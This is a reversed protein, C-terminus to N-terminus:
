EMTFLTGSLAPYITLTVKTDSTSMEATGWNGSAVVGSPFFGLDEETRGGDITILDWVLQPSPGAAALYLDIGDVIVPYTPVTTYQSPHRAAADLYDQANITIGAGNQNQGYGGTLRMESIGENAEFSWKFTNGFTTASPPASDADSMRIFGEMTFYSQAPINMGTGRIWFQKPDRISGDSWVGDSLEVSGIATDYTYSSGCQIHGEGNFIELTGGQMKFTGGGNYLLQIATQEYFKMTGGNTLVATCGNEVQIGAPSNGVQPWASTDIDCYNTTNALDLYIWQGFPQPDTSPPLAGDWNGFGDGGGTTTSWYQDVEGDWYPAGHATTASVACVATVMVALNTTIKVFM